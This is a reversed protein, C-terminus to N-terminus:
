RGLNSEVPAINKSNGLVFCIGGNGLSRQGGGLGNVIFWPRQDQDMFIPNVGAMRGFSTPVFFKSDKEFTQMVRSSGPRWVCDVSEATVLWESVLYDEGDELTPYRDIYIDDPIRGQAYLEAPIALSAIIIYILSHLARNM